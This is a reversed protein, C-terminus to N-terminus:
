LHKEINKLKEWNRFNPNVMAKIKKKYHERHELVKTEYLVAELRKVESQEEITLHKKNRCWIWCSLHEQWETNCYSECTTIEQWWDPTRLVPM